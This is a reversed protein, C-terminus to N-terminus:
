NWGTGRAAGGRNRGAVPFFAHAAPDRDNRVGGVRHLRDRDVRGVARRGAFAAVMMLVIASKAIGVVLLAVVLPVVTMKLANLWLTGVFEATALVDARAAGALAASFSGCLLGAVLGALTWWTRFSRKAPPHAEAQKASM